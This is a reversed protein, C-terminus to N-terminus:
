EQLVLIDRVISESMRHTFKVDVQTLGNDIFVKALDRTKPQYSNHILMAVGGQKMCAVWEPACAQIVSLPNRDGDAFHQVGYPLDTVLLHYRKGQSLQQANRTDGHVMTLDVNGLSFRKFNGSKSKKDKGLQGTTAKHKLKLLKCQKKVHSYFMETSKGDLEIGRSDMGYRTAWLLTTGRGAMPDLLNINNTDAVNLHNLGINIALQTVLENTKGQYKQGYVLESPYAYESDAKIPLFSHDSREFIGQVFSLRVIKPYLEDIKDADLAVEIFEMGGYRVVQAEANTLLHLEALAVDLYDGFYAMKALPSILMSCIM